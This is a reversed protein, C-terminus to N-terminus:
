DGVPRRSEIPEPRVVVGTSEVNLDVVEFQGSLANEVFQTADTLDKAEFYLTVTAKFQEKPERAGIDNLIDNLSYGDRALGSLRKVIRERFEVPTENPLPSIPM